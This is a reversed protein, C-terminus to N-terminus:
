STSSVFCTVSDNYAESIVVKSLGYAYCGHMRKFVVRKTVRLFMASFKPPFKPPFTKKANKLTIEKSVKM